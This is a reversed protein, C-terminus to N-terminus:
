QPLLFAASGPCAGSLTFRTASVSQGSSGTHYTPSTSFLGGFGVRTASSPCDNKIYRRCPPLPFHQGGHQSDVHGSGTATLISFYKGLETLGLQFQDTVPSSAACGRFVGWRGTCPKTPTADPCSFASLKCGNHGLQSSHSGSFLSVAKEKCIQTGSGSPCTASCFFFFFFLFLPNKM